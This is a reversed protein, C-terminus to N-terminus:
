EAKSQSCHLSQLYALVALLEGEKHRLRHSVELTMLTKFYHCQTRCHGKRSSDQLYCVPRRDLLGALEWYNLQQSVNDLIGHGESICLM